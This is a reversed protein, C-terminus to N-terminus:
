IKGGTLKNKLAEKFRPFRRAFLVRELAVEASYVFGNNPNGSIRYSVSRGDSTRETWEDVTQAQWSAEM